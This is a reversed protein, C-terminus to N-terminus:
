AVNHRILQFEQQGLMESSFYGTVNYAAFGLLTTSGIATVDDTYEECSVPMWWRWPKLVLFAASEAKRCGEIGQARPSPTEGNGRTEL